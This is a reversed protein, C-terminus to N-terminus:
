IKGPYVFSKNSIINQSTVGKAWATTSFISPKLLRPWARHGHSPLPHTQGMPFPGTWVKSSPKEHVHFHLRPWLPFRQHLPVAEPEYLYLHAGSIGPTLVEPFWLAESMRPVPETLPTINGLRLLIEPGEAASRCLRNKVRPALTGVSEPTLPPHKHSCLFAVTFLASKLFTWGTTIHRSWWSVHHRNISHRIRQSM